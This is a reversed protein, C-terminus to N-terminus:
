GLQKSLKKMFYAEFMQTSGSLSKMKFSLFAFSSLKDDRRSESARKLGKSENLQQIMRKRSKRYYLIGNKWVRWGYLKKKSFFLENPEDKM